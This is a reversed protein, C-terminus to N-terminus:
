KDAEGGCHRDEHHQETIKRSTRLNREVSDRSVECVWALLQLRLTKILNM